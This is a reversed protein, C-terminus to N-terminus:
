AEDDSSRAKKALPTLSAFIRERLSEWEPTLPLVYLLNEAESPSLVVYPGKYTM